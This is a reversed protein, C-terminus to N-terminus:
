NVWRDVLRNIISKPYLATPSPQTKLLKLIEPLAEAVSAVPHALWLVRQDRGIVALAPAPPVGEAGPAVGYAASFGRDDHLLPFRLGLDRQVRKLEGLPASSVALAKARLRLLAETQGALSALDRRARESSPDAFFYLVVATRPVEDRLMLVAEETSTLDFNPAEQGVAVRASTPYTSM